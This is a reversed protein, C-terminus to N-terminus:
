SEDEKSTIDNNEHSEREAKLGVNNTFASNKMMNKLFVMIPVYM